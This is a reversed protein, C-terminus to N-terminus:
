LRIKNFMYLYIYKFNHEILVSNIIIFKLINHSKLLKIMIIYKVKLSLKWFHESIM